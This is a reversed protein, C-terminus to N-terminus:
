VARYINPLDWLRPLAVNAPPGNMSVMSYVMVGGAAATHHPMRGGCREVVCRGTRTDVCIRIDSVYGVLGGGPIAECLLVASEYYVPYVRGAFSRQVFVTPGTYNRTRGAVRGPLLPPVYRLGEASNAFIARMAAVMEDQTLAWQRTRGMDFSPRNVDLALFFHLYAQAVVDQRASLSFENIVGTIRRSTDEVDSNNTIYNAFLMASVIVPLDGGLHSWAFMAKNYVGCTLGDITERADLREDGDDANM